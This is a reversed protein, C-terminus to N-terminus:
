GLWLGVRTSGDDSVWEIPYGGPAPSATTTPSKAAPSRVFDAFKGAMASLTQKSRARRTVTAPQVFLSGTPSPSPNLNPAEDVWVRQLETNFQRLADAARLVDTVMVNLSTKSKRRRSTM